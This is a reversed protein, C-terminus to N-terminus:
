GLIRGRAVPRGLAQAIMRQLVASVADLEPVRNRAFAKFDTPSLRQVTKFIQREAPAVASAGSPARCDACLLHFGPDVRAPEDDTLERECSNCRRWDPLYGSLRLLWVEFYIRLPLLDEEDEAATLCADIMRYLTEDAEHPPSFEILLDGIMSFAELFMPRSALGFRSRTMEVQQISVLERDEKQFYTLNVTSFPELTSGFRSKLRRAGKAVGRVVGYSRTFFVVIRDAESLNYSKIVLAESEKISM